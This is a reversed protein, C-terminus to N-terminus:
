KKLTTLLACLFHLTMSVPLTAITAVCFATAIDPMQKGLKRGLFFKLLYLFFLTAATRPSHSVKALPSFFFHTSPPHGCTLVGSFLNGLSLVLMGAEGYLPVALAV